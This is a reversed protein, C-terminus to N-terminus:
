TSRGPGPAAPTSTMATAHGTMPPPAEVVAVTASREIGLSRTPPLSLMALPLAIALGLRLRAAPQRM